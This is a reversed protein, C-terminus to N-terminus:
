FGWICKKSRYRKNKSCLIGFERYDNAFIKMIFIRNFEANTWHSSRLHLCALKYNFLSPWLSCSLSSFHPSLLLSISTWLLATVQGELSRLFSGVYSGPSLHCSWGPGRGRPVAMRVDDPLHSQTKDDWSPSLLSSNAESWCIHAGAGIGKSGVGEATFPDCPGLTTWPVAWFWNGGGSPHPHSCRWVTM